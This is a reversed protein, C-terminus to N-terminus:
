CYTSGFVTTAETKYQADCKYNIAQLVTKQVLLTLEM